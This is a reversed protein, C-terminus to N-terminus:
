PVVEPIPKVAIFCGHGDAFFRNGNADRFQEMAARYAVMPARHPGVSPACGWSKCRGDYLGETSHTHPATATWGYVVVFHEGKFTLQGSLRPWKQALVPYHIAIGLAYGAKLADVANDIPEDWYRTASCGLTILADRVQSTGLGAPYGDKDKPNGAVLRFAHHTVLEAQVSGWNALAAGGAAGCNRQGEISTIPGQEAAYQANRTSKLQPFVLPNV